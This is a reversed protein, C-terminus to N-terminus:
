WFSSGCSSNLKGSADLHRILSHDASLTFRKFCALNFLILSLAADKFSFHHAIKHKRSEFAFSIGSSFRAPLLVDQLIFLYLSMSSCVKGIHSERIASIRADKLQNWPLTQLISIIKLFAFLVFVQLPQEINFKTKHAVLPLIFFYIIYRSSYKLSFFRFPYLTNM